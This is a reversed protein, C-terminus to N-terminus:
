KSADETRCISTPIAFEVGNKKVARAIAQLMVHKTESYQQGTPNLAFQASVVAELHDEKYETWLARVSMLHHEPTEECTRKIEEEISRLISPIKDIDDYRFSLNQKIQSETLRSLTQVRQNVIQVNPIRTM